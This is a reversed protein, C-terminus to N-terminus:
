AKFSLYVVAGFLATWYSWLIVSRIIRDYKDINM